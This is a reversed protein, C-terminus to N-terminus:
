SGASRSDGSTGPKQKKTKRPPQKDSDSYALTVGLSGPLQGFFDLIGEFATKFPIEAAKDVLKAMFAPDLEAQALELDTAIVIATLKRITRASGAHAIMSFLDMLAGVDGAGVRTFAKAITEMGLEELLPLGHEMRRTSPNEMAM